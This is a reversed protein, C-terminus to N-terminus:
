NSYICAAVLGYVEGGVGFEFLEELFPLGLVFIGGDGAVLGCYDTEDGAGHSGEGVGGDVGDLGAELFRGGHGALSRQTADYGNRPVHEPLSGEKGGLGGGNRGWVANRLMESALLSFNVHPM